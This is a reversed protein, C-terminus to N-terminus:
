EVYSKPLENQIVSNKRFSMTSFKIYNSQGKPHDTSQREADVTLTIIVRVM